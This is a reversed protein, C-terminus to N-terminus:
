DNDFTSDGGCTRADVSENDWVIDIKGRTAPDQNYVTVSRGSNAETVTVPTYASAPVAANRYGINGRKERHTYGITAVLNGPLQRQVEVSYEMATPWDYGSTYRNAAGAPYGTSPGLENIQPKLDRNLDCGSTQGAACVTWPRTDNVVSIPNVRTSISIGVPTVYRNVALKLATRGDGALDYVASLRPNVAKWDPLGKAADYCKAAVFQNAAQCSATQWGYDMDFRVGLNLTLKRSPKWKDQIYLAEERNKMNAYTPTNYTNVSDARRQSLDGARGFHVPQDPGSMYQNIARRSITSSTFYSLSAQGVVRRNEQDRYTPLVTLLTNTVVDFGAIDGDQAEKPWTFWDRNRNLSGSVDVVMNSRLSSTWKVQNLQPTKDNRTTAGSQVFMTTSARHGNVKRQITYFYSLQSTPNVQWALKSSSNWLCNDDPM